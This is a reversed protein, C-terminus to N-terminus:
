SHTLLVEVELAEPIFKLIVKKKVSILYDFDEAKIIM